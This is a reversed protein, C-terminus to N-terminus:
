VGAPHAMAAGDSSASSTDWSVETHLPSWVIECTARNRAVFPALMIGRSSPGHLLYGDRYETFKFCINKCKLSTHKEVKRRKSLLGMRYFVPYGRAKFDEVSEAVVDKLPTKQTPGLVEEAKTTQLRLILPIDKTSGPEGRPVNQIGLLTVDPEGIIYSLVSIICSVCTRAFCFYGSRVIIREGVAAAGRTARVHAEAAVAVHVWNGKIECKSVKGRALFPTM